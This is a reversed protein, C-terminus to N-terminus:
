APDAPVQFELREDLGDMIEVDVHNAAFGLRQQEFALEDLFKMRTVVDTEAVVLAEEHELHVQVVGDRAEREGAELLVIARTIEPREDM